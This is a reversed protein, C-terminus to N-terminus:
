KCDRHQFKLSPWIWIVVGLIIAVDALNFRPLYILNFYDIVGGYIIRDLLNSVAGSLLFFGAWQNIVHFRFFIYVILAILGLSFLIALNNDGWQGWFLQSNISFSGAFVVLGNIDQLTVIVLPLFLTFYRFDNIKQDSLNCM